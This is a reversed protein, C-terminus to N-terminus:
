LTEGAPESPQQSRISNQEDDIMVERHRIRLTAERKPNVSSEM